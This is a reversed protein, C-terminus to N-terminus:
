LAQPEEWLAEDLEQERQRKLAYAAGAVVAILLLLKKVIGGGTEDTEDEAVHEDGSETGPASALPPRTVCSRGRRPRPRDHVDRDVTSTTVHAM